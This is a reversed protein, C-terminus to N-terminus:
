DKFALKVIKYGFFCVLLLGLTNLISNLLSDFFGGGSLLNLVDSVIFVHTKPLFMLVVGVVFCVFFNLIKPLAVV